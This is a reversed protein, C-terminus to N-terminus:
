PLAKDETNERQGSVLAQYLSSTTNLVNVLQEGDVCAEDFGFEAPPDGSPQLEGDVNKVTKYFKFWELIAELEGPYVADADAAGNIAAANPSDAPVVIVKWDVEGVFQVLVAPPNKDYQYWDSMTIADLNM